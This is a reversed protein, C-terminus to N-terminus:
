AAVSRRGDRKSSNCAHHALQVNAPEHTGGRSLPVVHDLTAARPHGAPLDQRVPGKCLQCIWADREFIVRAIVDAVFAGRKRMRHRENLLRRRAPNRRKWYRAKCRKGCVRSFSLAHKSKVYDRGCEACVGVAPEARRGLRYERSAIGQCAKCDYQNLYFDSRTKVSGCKGCQRLGAM